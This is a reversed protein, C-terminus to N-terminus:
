KETLTWIGEWKEPPNEILYICRKIYVRSPTTKLYVKQPESHECTEFIKLASGFDGKTCLDIGKNFEESLNKLTQNETDIRDMIDYIKVPQAKGVVKVNDLIRTLIMDQVLEYTFESIITDAGYQKGAAELRSTLNVNDGILTLDLRSEASGIDCLIAEGSNMGMRLYIPDNRLLPHSDNMERLLKKIEFAAEIMNRAAKQTDEGYWFLMCADGMFKDVDGEHKHTIQTIM